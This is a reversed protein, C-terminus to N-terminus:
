SFHILAPKGIPYVNFGIEYLRRHDLINRGDFIFSPKRMSAYIRKYDLDRFIDWETVIAIADCGEAARYPNERYEVEGQMDELDKRANELAKPDTIVVSAREELLRRVITIAASDRTDSTNAKFAFGFLCIRKNALTHFMSDMMMNVFREKQYENVRVVWEWYDAVETLGYYRCIYVLSMLDKKFCSGGFGVSANLFKSGIRSDMGVAKAVETIDAETKECLPTISNISSIRQALFANAVLKSLESSWINSKVIKERPVWNMYLEIIESGARKGEPTNRYGILIRNPEELDRIASGEALFEPNSVVEFHVRCNEASLIREMAEATRVPITSKEVIIKDSESYEKIARATKEWYQLDPAMGAGVGYTKTPTNVSVFIIDAEKIAGEMDKTFFLNKGRRRKVIEDLGPEFIPLTESNWNDIKEHDIDVLTVKYDPCKDAIVSMTIGGVYGAGICLIRKKFEAM